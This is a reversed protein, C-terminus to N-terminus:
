KNERNNKNFFKVLLRWDTLAGSFIGIITGIALFVGKYGLYKDLLFGGLVGIIIAIAMVLGLQTLMSVASLMDANDKWFLDKNQLFKKKHFM